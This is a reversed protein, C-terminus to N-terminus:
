PSSPVPPIKGVFINNSTLIKRIKSRLELVGVFIHEFTSKACEIPDHPHFFVIHEPPPLCSPDLVSRRGRWEVRGEVDAATPGNGRIPGDGATTQELKLHNENMRFNSVKEIASSFLFSSNKRKSNNSYRFFFVHFLSFHSSLWCLLFPINPTARRRQRPERGLGDMMRRSIPINQSNLFGCFHWEWLPM